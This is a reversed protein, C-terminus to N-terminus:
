PCNLATSSSYMSRATSMTVREGVGATIEARVSVRISATALPAETLQLDRASWDNYIMYGVIAKQAQQPTLDKGGTGIVAAIELEFDFWTSGPAIAVDERPGIV